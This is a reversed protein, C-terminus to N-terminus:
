PPGTLTTVPLQCPTAGADQPTLLRHADAIARDGADAQQDAEPLAHQLGLLRGRPTRWAILRLRDGDYFMEYKRGRM